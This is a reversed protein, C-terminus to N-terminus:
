NPLFRKDFYRKLLVIQLCVFFSFGVVGYVLTTSVKVTALSVLWRIKLFKDLDVLAFWASEESVGYFFVLAFVSVICLGICLWMYNPIPPRYVITNKKPITEIQEMVKSTFNLSPSEMPVERLAKGM